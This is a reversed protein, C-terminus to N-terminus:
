LYISFYIYAEIECVREKRIGTKQLCGEKGPMMGKCVIKGDGSEARGCVKGM